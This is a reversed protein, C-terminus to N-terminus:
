GHTLRRTKILSATISVAIEAPTESGIEIGIPADIKAIRERSLDIEQELESFILDVKRQSGIMGLYSWDERVVSKLVEYDYQHGRTVIVLYDGSRAQYDRLFEAFPQSHIGEARPFNERCAFEKREDIVKVRFDVLDAMRALEQAVHGAGFIFLRPKQELPELFVELRDGSPLQYSELGPSFFEDIDGLKNRLFDKVERKLRRNSQIEDRFLIVKDGPQLDSTEELFDAAIVTLLVGSKGAALHEEIKSFFKLTM